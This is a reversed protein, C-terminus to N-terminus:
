IQPWNLMFSRQKLKPDEANYVVGRGGEGIKKLIQNYAITKGIM